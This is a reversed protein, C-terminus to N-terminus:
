DISKLAPLAVNVRVNDFAPLVEKYPEFLTTQITNFKNDSVLSEPHDFSDALNERIGFVLTTRDMEVPIDERYNRLLTYLSYCLHQFGNMSLLVLSRGTLFGIRDYGLQAFHLKALSSILNLGTYVFSEGIHTKWSLMPGPDPGVISQFPDVALDFTSGFDNSGKRIAFGGEHQDTGAQPM